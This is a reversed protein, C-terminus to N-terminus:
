MAFGSVAAGEPLPFVYTGEITRGTTNQFTQTLTTRALGSKIDVRAAQSILQLEQNLIPNPWPIPRPHWIPPTVVPPHPPVHRHPAGTQARVTYSLAALAAVVSLTSLVRFTPQVKIKRMITM